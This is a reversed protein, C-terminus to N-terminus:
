ARRTQRPTISSPDSRSPAAWEHPQSAHHSPSQQTSPRQTMLYYGGLPEGPDTFPGDTTVVGTGQVHVTTASPAPQLQNADIVEDADSLAAYEAFVSEKM